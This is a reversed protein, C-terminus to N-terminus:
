SLITGIAFAFTDTELRFFLTLNFHQLLPAWIFLFKVKIFM